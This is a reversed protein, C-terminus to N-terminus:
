KSHRCSTFSITSRISWPPMALMFYRDGVGRLEALREPGRTMVSSVLAFIFRMRLVDLGAIERRLPHLLVAGAEGAELGDAAEVISVLDFLDAGLQAGHRGPDLFARQDLLASSALAISPPTLTGLVRLRDPTLSFLRGAFDSRQLHKSKGAHRQRAIFETNKGIQAINLSERGMRSHAPGYRVVNPIGSHQTQAAPTAGM